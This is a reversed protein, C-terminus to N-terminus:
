LLRALQERLTWDVEYAIQRISALAPLGMPGAPVSGLANGRTLRAWDADLEPDVHAYEKRATKLVYDRRAFRSETSNKAVPDNWWAAFPKLKNSRDPPLAGLPAEFTAGKGEEGTFRVLGPTGLVNDSIIPAATDLFRLRQQEGLQALLGTSAPTHHLLTRLSGALRLAEDEIGDDFAQASRELFGMQTRLKAVLHDHTLKSAVAGM